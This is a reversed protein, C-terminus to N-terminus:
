VPQDVRLGADFVCVMGPNSPREVLFIFETSNVFIWLQVGTPSLGAMALNTNPLAKIHSLMEQRPACSEQSFAAVTTAFVLGLALIFKKM